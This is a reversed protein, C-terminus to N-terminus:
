ESGSSWNPYLKTFRFIGNSDTVTEFNNYKNVPIVKQAIITIGSASLNDGNTLKGIATTSISHVIIPSSFVKTYGVPSTKIKLKESSVWGDKNFYVNIGDYTLKRM